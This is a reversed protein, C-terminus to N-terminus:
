SEPSVPNTVADGPQAFSPPAEPAGETFRPQEDTQPAAADAERRPGRHRRRRRRHTPPASLDVTLPPDGALSPGTVQERGEAATQNPRPRRHRRRRRRPFRPAEATGASGSQPDDGSPSNEAPTTSPSASESPLGSTPDDPFDPM